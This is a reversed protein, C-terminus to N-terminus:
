HCPATASCPGASQKGLWDKTQQLDDAQREREAPTTCVTTDIMTGTVREKHCQLAHAARPASASEVKAPVPACGTILTAMLVTAILAGRRM